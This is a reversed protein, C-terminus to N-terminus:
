NLIVQLHVLPRTAQFQAMPYMNDNTDITLSRFLYGPQQDFFKIWTETGTPSLKAIFQKHINMPFEYTIEGFVVGAKGNPNQPYRNPQTIFSGTLLVNGQSDIVLQGQDPCVITTFKKKFGVTPNATNINDLRVVIMDRTDFLANSFDDIWADGTKLYLWLSQKDNTFKIDLIFNEYLADVNTRFWTKDLIWSRADISNTPSANILSKLIKVLRYGKNTTSHNANPGLIDTAFIADNNTEIFPYTSAGVAGNM